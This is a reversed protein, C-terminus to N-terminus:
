LEGKRAIGSCMYKYMYMYMYMYQICTRVKQQEAQEIVETLPSYDGMCFECHAADKMLRNLFCYLMLRKPVHELVHVHVNICSPRTESYAVHLM